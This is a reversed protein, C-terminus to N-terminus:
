QASREADILQQYLGDGSLRNENTVTQILRGSDIAIIRDADNVTSMRHAIVLTTRGTSLATLAQQIDAEHVTDISSTAEDLILIPADKLIARAIALRQRQGGSLRMGREGVVTDLGLPLENVFEAAQAVQLAHAIEEESASPNAILLNNRVTDHFLFTDQAVVAILSRLESLSVDQIDQGNIRITGAKPDFFRLLLSVLTSKGSGSRGVIAVQEGSDLHLSCDDLVLRECSDPYCFQIHEFDISPPRDDHIPIHKVDDDSCVLVHPDDLVEFLMQTAPWAAYSSHYAKELEKLPRLAENTMILIILLEPGTIHGQAVRLAGIGVAVATGVGSLLEIAGIFVGEAANVRISDKCFAQAGEYLKERYRRTANFAKLTSMGQIADLIESYMRKYRQWWRKGHKHWYGRSRWLVLPGLIGCSLVTIGVYPDLAILYGSILIFGISAAFAQPFFRSILPDLRELSDVLNTQTQGSDQIAVYGPAAYFLVDLLQQRANSKIVGSLKNGVVSIYRLVIARCVVLLPIVLFPWLSGSQGIDGSFIMALIRAILVGQTVYTATVILHGILLAVLQLRGHPAFTLLRSAVLTVM